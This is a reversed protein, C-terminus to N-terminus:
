FRRSNLTKIKHLGLYCYPNSRTRRYFIHNRLYFNNIWARLNIKMNLVIANIVITNHAIVIGTVSSHHNELCRRSKASLRCRHTAPCWKGSPCRAKPLRTQSPSVARRTRRSEKAGHEITSALCPNMQRFNYIKQTKQQSVKRRAVQFIM